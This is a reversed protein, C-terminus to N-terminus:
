APSASAASSTAFAVPRGTTMVMAGIDRQWHVTIEANRTARQLRFKGPATGVGGWRTIVSGDAGLETVHQGRDTVYVHGDPAAAYTSMYKTSM